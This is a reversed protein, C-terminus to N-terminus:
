RLGSRMMLDKDKNKAVCLRLAEGIRKRVREREGQRESDDGTKSKHGMGQICRRMTKKVM